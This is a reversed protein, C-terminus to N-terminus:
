KLTEWIKGTLVEWNLKFYKDGLPGTIGKLRGAFKNYRCIVGNLNGRTYM